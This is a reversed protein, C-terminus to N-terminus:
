YNFAACISAKCIWRLGHVSAVVACINHPGMVSIQFSLLRPYSYRYEPTSGVLSEQMSNIPEDASFHLTSLTPPRAQQQQNSPTITSNNTVISTTRLKSLSGTTRTQRKNRMLIIDSANQQDDENYPEYYFSNNRSVISHEGHPEDDVNDDDITTCISDDFISTLGGVDKLEKRIQSAM